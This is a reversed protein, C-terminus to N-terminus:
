GDLNAEQKKAETAMGVPKGKSVDGFYIRHLDFGPTADVIKSYIGPKLPPVDAM